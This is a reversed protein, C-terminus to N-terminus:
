PMILEHHLSSRLSRPLWPLAAGDVLRESFCLWVVCAPGFGFGTEEMECQVARDGYLGLPQLRWGLCALM